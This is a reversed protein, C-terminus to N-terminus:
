PTQDQIVINIRRNQARGEPTDNSAIPHYKGFAVASLQNPDIGQPELFRVVSIARAASLNWNTPFRESLPALIPLNDTYGQIVIQKGSVGQLAPVIKNLEQQGQQGLEWGGEPFLIANVMTVELRNQLQRIQVQNAAVESQLSQNLQQYTGNLYLLQQNQQVEQNYQQQPVCGAALALICILILKKSKMHEGETVVNLRM